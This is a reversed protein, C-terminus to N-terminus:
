SKIRLADTLFDRGVRGINELKVNLREDIREDAFYASKIELMIPLTESGEIECTKYFDCFYAAKIGDVIPPYGEKVITTGINFKQAESEDHSLEESSMTLSSLMDKEALCITARKQKLINARTDKPSGDEKLGISVVVIPPKSSLPAFYSFPAINVIGDDDTLIWAIPRPFISYSMLKYIKTEDIANFDLIVQM